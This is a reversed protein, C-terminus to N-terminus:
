EDDSGDNSDLLSALIEEMKIITKGSICDFDEEELLPVVLNLKSAIAKLRQSKEWNDM